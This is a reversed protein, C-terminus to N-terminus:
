KKMIYCLAYYPPLNNHAQGGGTPNTTYSGGRKGDALGGEAEDGAAYTTHTHAPIENITLVHTAEGGTVAVNYILGAGV